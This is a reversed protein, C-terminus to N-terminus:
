TLRCLSNCIGHTFIHRYPRLLTCLFSSLTPSHSLPQFQMSNNYWVKFKNRSDIYLPDCGGTSWSWPIGSKNKKDRNGNCELACVKVCVCLCVVLNYM